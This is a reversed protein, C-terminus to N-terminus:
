SFWIVDLPMLLLVRKWIDRVSVAFTLFVSAVFQEGEKYGSDDKCDKERRLIMGKTAASARM